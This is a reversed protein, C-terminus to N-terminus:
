DKKFKTILKELGNLEHPLKAVIKKPLYQNLQKVLKITPLKQNSYVEKIESGNWEFGMRKGIKDIITVYGKSDNFFYTIMYGNLEVQNM